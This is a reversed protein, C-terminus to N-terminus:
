GKLRNARPKQFVWAAAGLTLLALMSPEPISTYSWFGRESFDAGQSFLKETTTGTSGYYSMGTEGAGDVFGIM